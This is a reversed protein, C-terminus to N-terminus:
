ARSAADLREELTAMTDDVAAFRQEIDATMKM